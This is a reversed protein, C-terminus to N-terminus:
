KNLISNSIKSSQIFQHYLESSVLKHAQDIVLVEDPYDETDSSPKSVKSSMNVLLSCSKSIFGKEGIPLTTNVILVNKEFGDKQFVLTYVHNAQLYYDISNHEKNFVSDMKVGDKYLVVSFNNTPVSRFIVTASLQMFSSYINRNQATAYFTFFNFLIISFILNLTKM